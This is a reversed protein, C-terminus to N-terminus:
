VLTQGRAIKINEICEITYIAKVCNKYITDLLLYKKLGGRKIIQYYYIHDEEENKKIKDIEKQLKPYRKYFAKLIPKLSKNKFKVTSVLIIEMDEEMKETHVLVIKDCFLLNERLFIGIKFKLRNNNCSYKIKTSNLKNIIAIIILIEIAVMFGYYFLTKVGTLYMTLPLFIGITIMVIYFNKLFKSERKIAKFINM